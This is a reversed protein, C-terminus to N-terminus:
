EKLEQFMLKVNSKDKECEECKDSNYRNGCQCRKMINISM